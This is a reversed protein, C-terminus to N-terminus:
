PASGGRALVEDTVTDVLRWEDPGLSEDLVVPIALLADLNPEWPQRSRAPKPLVSRAAEWFDPAMRFHARGYAGTEYREKVIETIKAFRDASM